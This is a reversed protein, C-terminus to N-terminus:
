RRLVNVVRDRGLIPADECGEPTVLYPGVWKRSYGTPDDQDPYTRRHPRVFWQHRYIRGATDRAATDDDPAPRVSQRLTIYRVAANPREAGQRRLRKRAAGDPLVQESQWLSRRDDAPQRILLLTGLLTRIVRVQDDNIEDLRDSGLGYRDKVPRGQRDTAWTRRVDNWETERNLPIKVGFGVSLDGAISHSVQRVWEPDARRGLEQMRRQYPGADDMVMVRLTEGTRHWVVARPRGLSTTSASPDDSWVLFGTPEEPLDAADFACVPLDEGTTRALWTMRDNVFYQEATRMATSLTDPSGFNTVMAPGSRSRYRQANAEAWQVLSQRAEPVDCARLHTTAM